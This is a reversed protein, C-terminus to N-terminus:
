KDSTECDNSRISGTAVLPRVVSLVGEIPTPPPAPNIEFSLLAVLETVVPVVSVIEFKAVPVPECLYMITLTASVDVTVLM